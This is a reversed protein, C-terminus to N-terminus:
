NAIVLYYPIQFTKIQLSFYCPFTNQSYTTMKCVWKLSVLYEDTSNQSGNSSNDTVTFSIPIERFSCLQSKNRAFHLISKSLYPDKWLPNNRALLSMQRLKGEEWAGWCSGGENPVMCYWWTVKQVPQSLENFMFGQCHCNDQCHYFGPFMYWYISRMKIM